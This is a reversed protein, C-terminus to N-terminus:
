QSLADVFLEDDMSSVSCQKESEEDPMLMGDVNTQQPVENTNHKAPKIRRVHTQPNYSQKLDKTPVVERKSLECVGTQPEQNSGPKQAKQTAMKRAAPKPAEPAPMKPMPSGPPHTKYYHQSNIVSRPLSYPRARPLTFSSAIIDEEININTAVPSAMYEMCHPEHIVHYPSISQPFM